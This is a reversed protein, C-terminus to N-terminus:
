DEPIEKPSRPWTAFSIAFNVVGVIVLFTKATDSLGLVWPSVILALALVIDSRLHVPFPLLKILGGEYRTLLSLLAIGAGAILSLLKAGPDDQFDFIWPGGLLAASIAYDFLAHASTSILKEM